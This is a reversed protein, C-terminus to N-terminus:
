LLLHLPAAARHQAAAAALPPTEVVELLVVALKARDTTVSHVVCLRTPRIPFQLSQLKPPKNNPGRPNVASLLLM